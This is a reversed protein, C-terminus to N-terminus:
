GRRGASSLHPSVVQVVLFKLRDEKDGVGVTRRRGCRDLRPIERAEM